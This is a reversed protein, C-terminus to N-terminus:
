NDYEGILRGAEDYVFVQTGQPVVSSPGTKRVRLNHGNILYNYTYTTAGSIVRVQSVRGRANVVWTTTSDATRNGAADITYGIGLNSIGTMRNSTPAINYTHTFPENTGVRDMKSLLNGTADYNFTQDRPQPSSAPSVTWATTPM